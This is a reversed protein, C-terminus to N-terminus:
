LLLSLPFILLGSAWHPSEWCLSCWSYSLEWMMTSCVRPPSPWWSHLWAHSQLFVPSPCDSGGVLTASWSLEKPNEPGPSAWAEQPTLVGPCPQYGYMGVGEREEDPPVLIIVSNWLQFPDWGNGPMVGSCLTSVLAVGCASCLGSALDKGRELWCEEERM